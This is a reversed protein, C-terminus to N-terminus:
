RENSCNELLPDRLGAAEFGAARLICSHCKGCPPFHGKYCTQSLKLAQKAGLKMALHISESKTLFLLPAKITIRETGRHDHGLATNIYDTTANLFIERCDDYNAEDMQCVGIVITNIGKEVARNAAITLFLANRMPVFTLEQRTGITTNMMEENDYTELENNSTLPSISHLCEPINIVEHPCEALQAIDIAADIESRHRQHYNFTIAEVEKYNAKAWYLCTTSDQGGSLVVLAKTM